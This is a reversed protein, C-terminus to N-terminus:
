PMVAARQSILYAIRDEAKDKPTSIEKLPSGQFARYSYSPNGDASAQASVFEVSTPEAPMRAGFWHGDEQQRWTVLSLASGVPYKGNANKRSYQVAEDNGFLTWM